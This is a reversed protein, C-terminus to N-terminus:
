QESEDNKGDAKHQYKTGYSALINDKCLQISKMYNDYPYTYKDLNAGCLTIITFEDSMYVVQMSSVLPAILKDAFMEINKQKLVLAKYVRVFDLFNDIGILHALIMDMVDKDKDDKIFLLVNDCVPLGTFDFGDFDTFVFTADTLPLMESFEESGDDNMVDLTKFNVMGIKDRNLSITFTCFVGDKKVIREDISVKVNKLIRNMSNVVLKVSGDNKECVNYFDLLSMDLKNLISDFCVTSCYKVFERYPNLPFEMINELSYVPTSKSNLVDNSNMIRKYIKYDPNM